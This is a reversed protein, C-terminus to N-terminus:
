RGAPKLTFRVQVENKESPRPAPDRVRVTGTFTRGATIGATTYRLRGEHPHVFSFVLDTDVHDGSRQRPGTCTARWGANFTEAYTLVQFAHDHVYFEPAGIDLLPGDCATHEEEYPDAPPCGAPAETDIRTSEHGSGSHRGARFVLALHGHHTGFVIQWDDHFRLTSSQRETTVIANSRHTDPDVGCPPDGPFPPAYVSSGQSAIAGEYTLVYHRIPGHMWAPPKLAARAAAQAPAAGFLVAIAVVLLVHGM